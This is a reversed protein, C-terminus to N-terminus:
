KAGETLTNKVTKSNPLAAGAFIKGLGRLKNGFGGGFLLKVSGWLMQFVRFLYPHWFPSWSGQPLLDYNIHYPVCLSRLGEASHVRGLGSKKVGGWPTECLGHTILVENIMVTGAELREAIRRARKTDASFVYANLGYRSNNARAIVEEDDHFKMIPLVPGFTEEAVIDMKEDADVLVTPPYFQGPGPLQQGGTLVKAGAARAQEVHRAVIEMQHADTMAGVSVGDELPNGTRLRKTREVVQEVVKDYISEHVYAREVSACVQGANAFAGWAMSGAAHKINADECVIMPDKGGLEMSCPILLRGCEAAVREGVATSGTFNVYDVGEKILDFATAGPMPLVQYLDPDLGAQDFLERTKLAILPTLSAPKQIIANGAMLAMVIEGTPITFPFNWPSICFVVGRPRYNIYSKRYVLLHMWISKDRLICAAKRRYYSTLDIVPFVETFMAETLPKGNEKAILTCVEDARDVLAFQFRKLTAARERFSKAAWKKQAAKARQIAEVGEEFTYSKVEGLVDGTSPSRVVIRNESM